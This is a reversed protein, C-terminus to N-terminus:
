RKTEKCNCDTHHWAYNWNWAWYKCDKDHAAFHVQQQLALKETQLDDIHQRLSAINPDITM